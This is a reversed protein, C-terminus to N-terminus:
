DYDGKSFKAVAVRASEDLSTERGLVKVGVREMIERGEDEWSGPIRFLTVIENPKEGNEKIGMVVGRAMVDSRTNNVVNMIVVLGKVGTKSLLHRTLAAVKEETPNGGVECYNAPKGGYRRIADFITLSAGGGGILLALDGDFEVVRGAVGRYDMEDIRRAEQEFDTAPRTGTTSHLDGLGELRDNQRFLSDDEIQLHADLGVYGEGEILVLPNIEAVIADLELFARSLNSLITGVSVISKGQLGCATAMERGSYPPLEFRPDFLRQDTHIHAGKEVEVGGSLSLLAVPQKAEYDWSIGIFIEQGFERRSELSVSSVNFGSFKKGLLGEVKGVAEAEREAGLVGGLKGRGGFPVPAKIVVPFGTTKLAGKLELHDQVLTWPNFKLGFDQLLTKAQCELLRPM